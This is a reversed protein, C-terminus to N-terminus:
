ALYWGLAAGIWYPGFSGLVTACAAVAHHAATLAPAAPMPWLSWILCLCGWAALAAAVSEAFARWGAPALNEALRPQVAVESGIVQVPASGGRPRQWTTRVGAVFAGLGAAALYALLLRCLSQYLNMAREISSKDYFLQALGAHSRLTEITEAFARPSRIPRRLQIEVVPALFTTAAAVPATTGVADMADALRRALESSEVWRAQQVGPNGTLSETLAAPNPPVSPQPVALVVMESEVSAAWQFVSLRAYFGAGFALAACFLVSASRNKRAEVLASFM